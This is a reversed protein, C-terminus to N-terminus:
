SGSKKFLEFSVKGLKINIKNNSGPNINNGWTGVGMGELLKGMQHSYKRQNPPVNNNIYSSTVRQIKRKRDADKKPNNVMKEMIKM